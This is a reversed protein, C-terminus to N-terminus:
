DSETVSEIVLIPADENRTLTMVFRLVGDGSNCNERDLTWYGSARARMREGNMDFVISGSHQVVLMRRGGVDIEGAITSALDSSVWGMTKLQESDFSNRFLPELDYVADGMGVPEIPLAQLAMGVEIENVFDQYEASGPPPMFMTGEELERVEVSLPEGIDSYLVDLLFPGRQISTLGNHDIYYSESRLDGGEPVVSGAMEVMFIVQEPQGAVKMTATQTIQYRDVPGCRILVPEELARLGAPLRTDAAGVQTAASLCLLCAALVMRSQRSM